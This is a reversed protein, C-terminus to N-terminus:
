REEDTGRGTLHDLWGRDGVPAGRPFLQGQGVLPRQRLTKLRRPLSERPDLLAERIIQAEDKTRVPGLTLRVSFGDPGELIEVQSDM